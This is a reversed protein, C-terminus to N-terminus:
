HSCTVDLARTAAELAARVRGALLYGEGLNRLIIAGHLPVKQFTQASEELLALGEERAGIWCRALGLASRLTPLHVRVNKADSLSFARELVPIQERVRGQRRYLYSLSEYLGVLHFPQESKQALAIAKEISAIGEAFDGTEALCYGLWTRSLVSFLFR